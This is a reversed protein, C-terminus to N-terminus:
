GKRHHRNIINKFDTVEQAAQRKYHTQFHQRARVACFSAILKRSQTHHDSDDSGDQKM